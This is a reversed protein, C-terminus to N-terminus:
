TIAQIRSAYTTWGSANKYTNVSSAPVYIPCNNTLAFPSGDALIPPTPATITISTLGSCRQFAFSGVNTVGSGISCTTMASCLFFASDGITTVSDPIDISTLSYGSAFADNGISTVSNGITCSTLSVCLEFTDVGISTVGNGIHANTLGSCNAFSWNGMSTVSDPITIGTLKTNNRFVYDGITTVSDSIIISEVGRYRFAGSGITTVCDGVVATLIGYGGPSPVEYESLTTSSNCEVSYPENNYSIGYLKAPEPTCDPSNLQMLSGKRYQAPSVDEWSAGGNYSVQYVEKHYKNYVAM